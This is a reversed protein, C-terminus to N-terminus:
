IKNDNTNKMAAKIAARLSTPEMGDRAYLNIWRTVTISMSEDEGVEWELDIMEPCKELFDLMAKEDTLEKLEKEIREFDLIAPLGDPINILYKSELRAAALKDRADAYDSALLDFQKSNSACIDSMRKSDQKWFDREKETEALKLSLADIDALRDQEREEANHCEEVAHDREQKIATYRQDVQAWADVVQAHLADRDINVKIIQSMLARNEEAVKQRSTLAMDLTHALERAVSAPVWEHPGDYRPDASPTFEIVEKELDQM